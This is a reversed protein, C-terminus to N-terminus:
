WTCCHTGTHTFASGGAPGRIQQQGPKKQQGPKQQTNALISYICSSTWFYNFTHLSNM